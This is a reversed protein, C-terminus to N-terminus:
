PDRPKAERGKPSGDKACGEAQKIADDVARRIFGAMGYSGVLAAIREKAGATLRVKTEELDMAPRGMRRAKFPSSIPM